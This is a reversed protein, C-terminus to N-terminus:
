QPCLWRMARTLLELFHGNPDGDIAKAADAAIDHAGDGFGFAGVDLDDGDIIESRDFGIRMQQAVIGHVAAEGALDFDVAVEISQPLPGILTVATLSGACSGHFCSPMSMAM